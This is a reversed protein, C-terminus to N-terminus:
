SGPTTCIHTSEEPTEDGCEECYSCTCQETCGNSCLELPESDRLAQERDYAEQEQYYAAKEKEDRAERTLHKPLVRCADCIYIDEGGESPNFDWERWRACEWGPKSTKCDFCWQPALEEAQEAKVACPKCMVHADHIGMDSHEVFVAHALVTDAKVHECTDTGEMGLYYQVRQPAWFIDCFSM